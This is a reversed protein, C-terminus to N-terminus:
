GHSNPASGYSARFGKRGKSPTTPVIKLDGMHLMEVDQNAMERLAHCLHQTAASKGLAVIMAAAFAAFLRAEMVERSFGDGLVETFVSVEDMSAYWIELRADPPALRKGKGTVRAGTAERAFRLVLGHARAVCSPSATGWCGGNGFGNGYCIV